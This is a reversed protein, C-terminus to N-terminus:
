KNAVTLAKLANQISGKVQRGALRVPVNLKEMKVPKLPPQPDAEHTLEGLWVSYTYGNNARKGFQQDRYNVLRAALQEMTENPLSLLTCAITPQAGPYQSWITGIYLKDNTAPM